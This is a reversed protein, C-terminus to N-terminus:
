KFPIDPFLKRILDAMDMILQTRAELDDGHEEFYYGPALGIDILYGLYHQIEKESYKSVINQVLIKVLEEEYENLYIV